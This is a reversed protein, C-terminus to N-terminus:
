VKKANARKIGHHLNDIAQKISGDEDVLTTHTENGQFTKYTIDITRDKENEQLLKPNFLFNPKQKTVLIKSDISVEPGTVCTRQTMNLAILMDIGTQKLTDASEFTVDGAPKKLPNDKIRLM